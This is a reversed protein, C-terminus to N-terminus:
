RPAFVWWRNLAFTAGSVLPMALVQALLRHTGFLEILAVLLLGNLGLGCLQAAVYRALGAPAFAGARFTWARNLTYGNLAGLLFAPVIAELYHLGADILAAYTALTIATNTVGVAAFRALQGGIVLAPVPLRRLQDIPAM